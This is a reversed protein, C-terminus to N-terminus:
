NEVDASVRFRVEGDEFDLEFNGLPIRTNIRSLAEAMATRRDAPVNSDYNSLVSVLDTDDNAGLILMLRHAFAADNNGTVPLVTPRGANDSHETGGPHVIRPRNRSDAEQRGDQAVEYRLQPRARLASEIWGAPSPVSIGLGNDECVFLVPLPTGRHAFYGSANLAGQTTSHNM